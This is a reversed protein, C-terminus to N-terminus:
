PLTIVAGNKGVAESIGVNKLRQRGCSEVHGDVFVMNANENHRLHVGGGIGTVTPYFMWMQDPWTPPTFVTDGFLPFDALSSVKAQDLLQDDGIFLRCESATWSFNVGYTKYRKFTSPSQTPCFAINYTPLYNLTKYFEYWYGGNGANSRHLLIM